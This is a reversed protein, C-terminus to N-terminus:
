GALLTGALTQLFCKYKMYQVLSNLSSHATRPWFGGERQGPLYERGGEGKGEERGEEKGERGKRGKKM